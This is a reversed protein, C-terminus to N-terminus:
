LIIKTSIVSENLELNNIYKYLSNVCVKMKEDKPFKEKVEKEIIHKVQQYRKKVELVMKPNKNQFISHEMEFLKGFPFSLNHRQNVLSLKLYVIRKHDALYKFLCKNVYLEDFGYIFKQVNEQEKNKVIYSLDSIQARVDDYKGKNVDSLFTSMNSKPLYIDKKVICRWLVIPYDVDEPIWPKFYCASSVYSVKAKKEKMETIYKYDFHRTYLDVDSIWVYDVKLSDDFLAHLRVITGFTGDHHIGDELLFNKDEYWYIELNPHELTFLYNYSAEHTLISEDIYLRIFAKPLNKQIYPVLLKFRELYKDYKKSDKGKFLSFSICTEYIAESSEKLNRLCKLKM